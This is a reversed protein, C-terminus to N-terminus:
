APQYQNWPARYPRSLMRDAEEDGIIQENKPDWRLDRGTRLAINGLHALTISRHAIEAPAITEEGSFVCDIFNTTHNESQYLHIGEPGIEEELLSKPNADHNGRTAWVWGDTGEFTVGGREENSIILTVGNEYECEFYYETATNYVPHDSRFTGQANKVAIPGTYQTDMGWQAIDPHHGGWDTLQGGSYNLNWRFNVGVRAPCYYAEPAPGLWLDYAFDEPIPRPTTQDATHGFDPTGGPLGCRVTQLKGILGNRVLECARRFNHDSRQQSGTQFTVGAKKVADSIWRGEAVTLTLPKQCYIHKGAKASEVAMLAHWHDPTGIYVGDIDDRAIAERFDIYGACSHDGYFENVMRRAPERGRVTGGWYGPGEANVDCVALVRVRDDRLFGNLWNTGNNGTGLFAMTLKESPANQGLVSSPVFLPASLLASTQLFTRRTVHNSM